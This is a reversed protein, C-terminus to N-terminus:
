AGNLLGGSFGILLVAVRLLALSPAFATAELGIIIMAFAFLLLSKHGRRDVIPGFVLSGALVGFILLSLLTGAQAKDLGFRPMLVPLSAGLITLVIGFTVM